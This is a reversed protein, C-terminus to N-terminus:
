KNLILDGIFDKTEQLQLHFPKNDDYYIISIDSFRKNFEEEQKKILDKM